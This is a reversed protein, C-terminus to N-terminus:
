GRATWGQGSADTSNTNWVWAWMRACTKEVVRHFQVGLRLRRSDAGDLSLREEARTEVTDGNLHTGLFRVKTDISDTENLPHEYGVGLHAGWYSAESSYHLDATNGKGDFGVKARGARASAELYFRNVFSQKVFVGLGHHRTDGDGRNAHMAVDEDAVSRGFGPQKVSLGTDRSPRVADRLLDPLARNGDLRDQTHLITNEHQVRPKALENVSLDRAIYTKFRECTFTGFCLLNMSLWSWNSGARAIGRVAGNFVISQISARLRVAVAL